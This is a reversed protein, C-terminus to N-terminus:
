EVVVKARHSIGKENSNKNKCEIIYIGSSLNLIPIDVRDTRSTQSRHVQKGIANHITIIYSDNDTPLEIHILGRAPNPYIQLQTTSRPLEIADHQEPPFPSYQYWFDLQDFVITEVTERINQATAADLALNNTICSPSKRFLITFFTVAAAYTGAMSPHSEDSSYLEIEPHTERLVHWVRGVPSVAAQNTEAMMMYREYILSDMGEYTCLPAYNACNSADGNKRGWTMYFIIESNHNNSRILNCLQQAYPFCLNQADSIPFAPLQSQEQLVIQDWGGQSILTTTTSNSLHSQFTCGGPTSQGYNLTDGCGLALTRITGPLDNVYTYSNGIFLVKKTSQTLATLTISIFLLALIKKM